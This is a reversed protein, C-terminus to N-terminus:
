KRPHTKHYIEKLKGMSLHTYKQTTSLSSHGLLEQIFRLDAGANLLHTACSHRLTHPSINHKISCLVIYKDLMRAISRGTMRGGRCNLFLAQEHPNRASTINGKEALYNHLADQAKQGFPILREKKGKGKVRVMKNKYDIDDLNLQVLESLRMGTAYLLELIALDRKGLSKKGLKSRVDPTEMLKTMADESLFHPIKKEQKPTAIMKAPNLAVQGYRSLYSFFSRITALKRAISAKSLGKSHLEALFDRITQNRIQDLQIEENEDKQSKLFAYFQTLDIKYNRVTHESYGKGYKLTKIFKDILKVM